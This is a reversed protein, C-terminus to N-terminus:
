NVWADVVDLVFDGELLSAQLLSRFVKNVHLSEKHKRMLHKACTRLGRDSSPTTSYIQTCVGAFADPNWKFNKSRMVNQFKEKALAKLLPVNYKDAIAYVLVNIIADGFNDDGSGSWDCTYFYCLM